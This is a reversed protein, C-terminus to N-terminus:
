FLMDFAARRVLKLLAEEVHDQCHWHNVASENSTFILLFLNNKGATRDRLYSQSFGFLDANAYVYM